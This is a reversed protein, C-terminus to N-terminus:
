LTEYFVGYPELHILRQGYIEIDIPENLMNKYFIVEIDIGAEEKEGAIEICDLYSNFNERSTINEIAKRLITYNTAKIHEIYDQYQFHYQDRYSIILQFEVIM